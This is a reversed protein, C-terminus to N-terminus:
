SDRSRRATEQVPLTLCRDDGGEENYCMGHCLEIDEILLRAYSQLFLPDPEPQPSGKLELECGCLLDPLEYAPHSISREQPM